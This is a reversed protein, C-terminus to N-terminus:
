LSKVDILNIKRRYMELRLIIKNKSYNIKACEFDMTQFIAFKIESESSYKLLSGASFKSKPKINVSLSM